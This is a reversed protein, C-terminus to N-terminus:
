FVGLVILFSAFLVLPPSIPRLSGPLYYDVDGIQGSAKKPLLFLLCELYSKPVTEPNQSIMNQIINFLIGSSFYSTAKYASFPIGDPGTSSNKSNMVNNYVNGGTIEWGQQSFKKTM